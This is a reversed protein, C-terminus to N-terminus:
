KRNEIFKNIMVSLHRCEDILEKGQEKAIYGLDSGAYLMSRVEGCSGKAILFYRKLVPSSGSEYGEAINNMVSIAARQIQDNFGYDKILATLGYVKLVIGRAFQWVHLEEFTMSKGM